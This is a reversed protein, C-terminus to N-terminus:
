QLTAISDFIVKAFNGPTHHMAFATAKEPSFQMAGTAVQRIGHAIEKETLSAVTIGLQYHEILRGVLGFDTGVVPLRHAAAKVLMNSSGVHQRYTLLAADSLQMAESIDQESVYRDDVKVLVNDVGNLSDINAEIDRKDNDSIPGLLTLVIPFSFQETALTRLVENVGKRADIVGAILLRFPGGRLSYPARHFSKPVPTPDPVHLIRTNSAINQIPNVSYPDLTFLFKLDKNGLAYKLVVKKRVRTIM